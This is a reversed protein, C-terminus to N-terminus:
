FMNFYHWCPAQGMTSTWYICVYHIFTFNLMFIVVTSWNLLLTRFSCHRVWNIFFLSGSTSLIFSLIDMQYICCQHMEQCGILSLLFYASEKIRPRLQWEGDRVKAIFPTLGFPLLFSHEGENGRKRGREERGERCEKMSGERKRRDIICSVPSWGISLAHRTTDKGPAFHPSM